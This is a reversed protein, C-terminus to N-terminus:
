KRLWVIIAPPLPPCSCKSSPRFRNCVTRSMEAGEPYIEVMEVEDAQFHSLWSGGMGPTSAGAPRDREIPNRTGLGGSISTPGRRSEGLTAGLDAVLSADEHGDILVCSMGSQLVQLYANFGSTENLARDLRTIGLPELEDRTVIAARAGKMRLRRTAEFAVIKAMEASTVLRGDAPGLRVDFRHQSRASVTVAYQAVAYGPKRWQVLFIGPKFGQLMFRGASDAETWETSGVVEVIVGPIPKGGTDVVVGSVSAIAEAQVTVTPLTLPLKNMRINVTNLTDPSVRITGRTARYGPKQVELAFAGAPLRDLRYRGDPASFAFFRGSDISIRADALPLGAADRVMGAISGVRPPAQTAPADQAAAACPLVLLFPLLLAVTAHRTM